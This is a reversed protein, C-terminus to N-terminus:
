YNMSRKPRFVSTDAYFASDQGEWWGPVGLIPLPTFDATTLTGTLQTAVTDDIWAIKGAQDLKFFSADAIVPWAHATIAKYPHVLKEMLAHGFLWVECERRFEDRRQHFVEPWRHARLGDLLRTNTVVLLAANEDFLTAADRVKGRVTPGSAEMPTEVRAIEAAQLANLRSKIKSFTLWTLANFYDHLNDRTPVGGSASIFAEYAMGQPLSAQPVFQIPKGLHNRLGQEQAATNLANRWAGAHKIRMASERVSALWPRRWDIEALFPAEDVSVAQPTDTLSGALQSAAM